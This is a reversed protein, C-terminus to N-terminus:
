ASRREAELAPRNQANAEAELLQKYRARGAANAQKQTITPRHAQEQRVAAFLIANPEHKGVPKSKREPVPRRLEILALRTVKALSGGVRRHIIHVYAHCGECLPMLDEDPEGYVNEYSLHHLEISDTSKCGNCRRAHSMYYSLRRQRWHETLMYAAHNFVAM